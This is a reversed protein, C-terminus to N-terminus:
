LCSIGHLRSTWGGIHLRPRSLTYVVPSFSAHRWSAVDANSWSSLRSPCLSLCPFVRVSLPAIKSLDESWFSDGTSQVSWSSTVLCAVLAPERSEVTKQDCFSLAGEDGTWPYWWSIYLGVCPCWEWLLSIFPSCYDLSPLLRQRMAVSPM